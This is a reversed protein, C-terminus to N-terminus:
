TVAGRRKRQYSDFGVALLIVTGTVAPQWYPSVGYLNLANSVVGLLLTGLVASYVGGLGGRLPTGGVVVAAIASLAWGETGTPQGVNTQSLLVIGAVAACLGGFLYACILVRNVPVGALRAAEKSSGVAYIYHGLRTTKLLVWTIVAVGLFILAPNPVGATRGLGFDSFWVPLGAIARGGTQTLVIGTILTASGLTAVFPSIGVKTILAGNFLGCVLGVILAVLLALPISGTNVIIAAASVSAGVGIAGISLDFGGSIIIVLMGCAIIGTISSQQLVNLLNNPNRFNASNILLVVLIIAFVGQIGFRGVLDLAATKSQLRRRQQVVDAPAEDVPPTKVQDSLGPSRDSDPPASSM